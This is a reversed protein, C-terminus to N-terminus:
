GLEATKSDLCGAYYLAEKAHELTDYGPIPYQAGRHTDVFYTGDVLTVTYLLTKAITTEKRKRM